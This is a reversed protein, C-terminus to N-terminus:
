KIVQTVFNGIKCPFVEFGENKLKVTKDESVDFGFVASGSGSMYACKGMIKIARLIDPNLVSSATTLDNATIGEVSEDNELARIVASNDLAQLTKPLGDYLRFVDATNCFGKIAIVANREKMCFRDTVTSRGEIRGCGGDLMFATDSGVSDAIEILKEKKIGLDFLEDIGIIVGSMDASSAGLGAGLPINNEINICVPSFAFQERMKAVLSLIKAKISENASSMVVVDRESKQVSIVDAINASAVVSDLIHYGKNDTGNVLLSINVKAYVKVKIM